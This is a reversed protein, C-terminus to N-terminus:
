QTEAYINIVVTKGDPDDSLNIVQQAAPKDQQVEKVIKAPDERFEQDFLATLREATLRRIDHPYQEQMTGGYQTDYRRVADDAIPLFAKVANQSDYVGKARLDAMNRHVQQLTLQLADTTAIYKVLEDVVEEPKDFYAVRPHLVTYENDIITAQHVFARLPSWISVITGPYTTTIDRSLQLAAKMSVATRYMSTPGAVTFVEYVEAEAVTGHRQQLRRKRLLSIAVDPFPILM